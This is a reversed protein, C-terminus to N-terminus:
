ILGLSTQVNMFSVVCCHPWIRIMTSTIRHGLEGIGGTARHSKYKHIAQHFSCVM